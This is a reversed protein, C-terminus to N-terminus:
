ASWVPVANLSTIAKPTMPIIECVGLITITPVPMPFKCDQPRSTGEQSLQSLTAAGAWYWVRRANHLTVTNGDHHTLQGYHVGADRSRILVTKPPTM